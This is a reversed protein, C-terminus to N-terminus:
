VGELYGVVERRHYALPTVTSFTEEAAKRIAKHCGQTASASTPDTTSVM